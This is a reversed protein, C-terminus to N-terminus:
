INKQNLVSKGLVDYVSLTIEIDDWDSLTINVIGNSLNPYANIKVNDNNVCNSIFFQQVGHNLRIAEESWISSSKLLQSLLIQGVSYSFSGDASNADGGSTIIDQHAFCFSTFLFLFLRNLTYIMM